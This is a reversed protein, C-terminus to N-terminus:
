EASIRKQQSQFLLAVGEEIRDISLGGFGLIVMGEEPKRNVCTTSFPFLKIGSHRAAAVLEEEKVATDHLQVVVHLGAGQGIVSAREGCHRALARLLADHKKRYLTRVRRVHREWHGQEMFQALARQELVSVSPAYDSFLRRYAPLLSHPLVLYSVRLAPSLVKSFTGSYVINGDPDLGQLSPIPRGHYRLESDYDDEIIFNGGERAWRLLKLRNAIPMVCGMPFQHSPTVYAVTSRSDQLARLDLGEDLVPLPLVELSHNAFVSRALHYGPDEVAVVPRSDKLLHAVIDLGHQLGGCVVIQDIDCVVGRSQELYKRIEGRLTGEGQAESYHNLDRSGRHLADLLCKRWIREPFAEADLRAPHFDFLCQTEQVTERAAGRAPPSVLVDDPSLPSVFYGSREKSYIYGEAYLELYANEVTNRSILHQRALDRVSPLRSDAAFRGSLIAGKIQSYLQTYLPVQSDHSLVLM